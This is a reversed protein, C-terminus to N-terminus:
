PAIGDTQTISAAVATDAIRGRRRELIQRESLTSKAGAIRSQEASGKNGFVGLLLICALAVTAFGGTLITMRKKDAAQEDSLANSGQQV